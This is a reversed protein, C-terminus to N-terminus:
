TDAEAPELASMVAYNPLYGLTFGCSLCKVNEFFWQRHCHDCHFVKM